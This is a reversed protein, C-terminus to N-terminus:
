AMITMAVKIASSKIVEFTMSSGKELILRKTKDWIKDDRIADLYEHGDWTLRTLNLFIEGSMLKEVSAEILGNEKMIEAHYHIETARDDDFNALTLTSYKEAQLLIERVIDLNREM